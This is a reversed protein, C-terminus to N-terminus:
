SHSVDALSFFQPLSIIVAVIGVVRRRALHMVRECVMTTAPHRELEELLSSSERSAPLLEMELPSSLHMTYPESKPQLEEYYLVSQSSHSL